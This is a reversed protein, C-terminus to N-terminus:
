ENEPTERRRYLMVAIGSAIVFAPLILIVMSGLVASMFRAMADVGSVGACWWQWAM